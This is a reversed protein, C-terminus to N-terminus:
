GGDEGGRQEVLAQVADGPKQRQGALREAVAEVVDELAVGTGVRWATNALVAVVSQGEGGIELAESPDLREPGDRGKVLEAVFGGPESGGLGLRAAEDPAESM